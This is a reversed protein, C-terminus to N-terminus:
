KAPLSTHNSSHGEIVQIQIQMQILNYKNYQIQILNHITFQTYNSQPMM